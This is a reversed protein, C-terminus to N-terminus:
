KDSPLNALPYTYTRVGDRQVVTSGPIENRLGKFLRHARHNEHLVEAIMFEKRENRAIKMLERVLYKGLGFGRYMALATVAVEVTSPDEKLAIYRALASFEDTELDVAALAFDKRYDIHTYEYLEEQTLGAKWTFWRMYRSALTMNSVIHDERTVDDPTVPRVRLTVTDFSPPPSPSPGGDQTSTIESSAHPFGSENASYHNRSFTVTHSILSLPPRKIIPPPPSPKTVFSTATATSFSRPSSDRSILQPQQHHKTLSRDAGDSRRSPDVCTIVGCEEGKRRLGLGPGNAFDTRSVGVARVVALLRMSLLNPTKQPSSIFEQFRIGSRHRFSGSFM